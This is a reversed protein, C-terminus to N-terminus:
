FLLYANLVPNPACNRTCRRSSSRTPGCRDQDDDQMISKYGRQAPMIEVKEWEIGDEYEVTDDSECRSQDDSQEDDDGNEDSNNGQLLNDKINGLNEENEYDDVSGYDVAEDTEPAGPLLSQRQPSPERLHHLTAGRGASVHQSRIDLNGVAM